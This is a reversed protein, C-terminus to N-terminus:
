QGTIFSNVAGYTKGQSNQAATCFFHQTNPTLGTIVADVNGNGLEISQSATMSTIDTSTTGYEFWYTTNFGNADVYGVLTSHNNGVNKASNTQVLPSGSTRTDKVDSTTCGIFFSILIMSIFLLFINKGM